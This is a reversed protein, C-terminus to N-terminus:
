AHFFNKVYFVETTLNFQRSIISFVSPKKINKRGFKICFLHINKFGIAVTIINKNFQKYRFYNM